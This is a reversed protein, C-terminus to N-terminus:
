RVVPLLVDINNPTKKRPSSGAPSRSKIREVIIDEVDESAFLLPFDFTTMLEEEDNLSNRRGEYLWRKGKLCMRNEVCPGLRLFLSSQFRQLVGDYRPFWCCPLWGLTHRVEKQLLRNISLFLAQVTMGIADLWLLGDKNLTRENIRHVVPWAWCV